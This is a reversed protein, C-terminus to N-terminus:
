FSVSSYIGERDRKRINSWGSMRQQEYIKGSSARPHASVSQWKHTFEHWRGILHYVHKINRECSSFSIAVIKNKRSPCSCCYYIPLVNHTCRGQCSFRCSGSLFNFASIFMHGYRATCIKLKSLVLSFPPWFNLQCNNFLVVRHNNSTRTFWHLM